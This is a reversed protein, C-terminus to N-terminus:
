HRMNVNTRSPDFMKTKIIKLSEIPDNQIKSEFDPLEKVRTQMKKNCCGFSLVHSKPENEARKKRRENCDWLEEKHKLDHGQQELTKLFKAAEDSAETKTMKITQRTPETGPSQDKLQRLADAM